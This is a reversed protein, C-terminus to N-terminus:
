VQPLVASVVSRRLVAKSLDVGRQKFATQWSGDDIESPKVEGEAPFNQKERVIIHSQHKVPIYEVWNVRVDHYHGDGGYVSVVATRNIGKFGSATVQVTQTNDAEVKSRTKLLSRTICEPHQFVAEGFHNAITEHEWFCSHSSNVGKYIDNHSRHQQYLPIALLPAIGFFFSKFFHNHYDNFFRRAYALEYSYFKEPQASIDTSVMHAPEVLNIMRRKEFEFDDGYGVEKDKLLKHMEQQALPTFLLRFQVEHDRDTAGFMADFERNAMVTFGGGNEINRSKNELKKVARDKKWNAIWGDGLTSLNSPQRSFSLDPAAENGYIIFSRHGYEPFPKEVSANLTQHRTVTTWRGSSDRQRETWSIQRSGHYTKTGMSHELTQALIFPNGNIVGSHSFVISRGQNFQDNWGFSNRLEDLRGNSFYPDLNIRPVTKELLKALIDWKYLRNLPAMQQWAEERKADRQQELNKLRANVDAILKNLKYIAAGFLGAPVIMWMLSYNNAYVYLLSFALAAITCVRLIGWWKSASSESSVGTELERLQKVTVINANEDVGSQRVLDEFLESTNRAHAEKFHTKYLELPEHVDEIM